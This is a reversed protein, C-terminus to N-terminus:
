DQIEGQTKRQSIANLINRKDSELALKDLRDLIAREGAPCFSPNNILTLLVNEKSSELVLKDFVAQILHIQAEPGLYDRGAIKEYADRKHSELVLKGVADIEAITGDPPQHRSPQRSHREEEDVVVVCGHLCVVIFLLGIALFGKKM